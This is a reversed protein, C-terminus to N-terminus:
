MESMPCELKQEIELIRLPATQVMQAIEKNSKNLQREKERFRIVSDLFRLVSKKVPESLDGSHEVSARRAKLEEPNLEGVDQANQIIESKNGAAPQRVQSFSPCPVLLVLLLM